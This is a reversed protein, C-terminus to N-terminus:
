GPRLFCGEVRGSKGRWLRMGALFIRNCRPDKLFEPDLDCRRQLSRLVLRGARRLLPADRRPWGNESATIVAKAMRDADACTLGERVERLADIIARREEAQLLGFGSRQASGAVRAADQQVARRRAEARRFHAVAWRVSAGEGLAKREALVAALDEADQGRIGRREVARRFGALEREYERFDM